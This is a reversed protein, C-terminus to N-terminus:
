RIRWILSSSTRSSVRPHCCFHSSHYLIFSFSISDFALPTSNHVRRTSFGHSHTLFYMIRSNARPHCCFHSSFLLLECVWRLFFCMLRSNWALFKISKCVLLMTHGVFLSLSVQSMRFAYNSAKTKSSPRLLKSLLRLLSFSFVYFGPLLCCVTAWYFTWPISNQIRCPTFLSTPGEVSRLVVAHLYLILAVACKSSTHHQSRKRRQPM